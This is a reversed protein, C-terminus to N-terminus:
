QLKGALTKHPKLVMKYEMDGWRIWFDLWGGGMGSDVANEPFASRLADGVKRYLEIFDDDNLKAEKALDCVRDDISM